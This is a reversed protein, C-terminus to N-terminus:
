DDKKSIKSDKATDEGASSPKNDGDKKSSAYLDKYWGGGKLHFSGTTVAKQLTGHADCEPCAEPTGENIKQILELKKHCQSCTYEYIPM